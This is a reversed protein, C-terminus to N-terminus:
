KSCTDKLSGLIAWTSDQQRKGQDDMPCGLSSKLVSSLCPLGILLIRQIFM